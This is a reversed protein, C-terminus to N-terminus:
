LGRHVLRLDACARADEVQDALLYVESAQVLSISHLYGIGASEFAALGQQLWSFGADLHGSRAYVHGLSAMVIPTFLTINWERCQAVARELLGAAQSLEGKVSDLYALGLCAFM